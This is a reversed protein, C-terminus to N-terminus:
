LAVANRLEDIVAHAIGLAAVNGTRPWATVM